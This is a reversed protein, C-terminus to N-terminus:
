EFVCQAPQGLVQTLMWRRQAAMPPLASPAFWEAALMERGDPVIKGAVWEARFLAVVIQVQNGDPYTHFFPLGTFVGALATPQIHIQLEEYAERILGAAPSEGVEMLGGIYGWDQTDARLGLLVRGQADQILAGNGIVILRQSGVAQRLTWYREQGLPQGVPPDFYAHGAAGMDRVMATYWAPCDEPMEGPKFFRQHKSEQGDPRAGGGVIRCEFAVTFQQVQDGNPYAVDWEPAAYLGVVRRPAVQLGTEEAVERVVCETLTEGIELAGGPLGWWEFDTRKQFLLRGQEDRILATTYVLLTKQSGIHSRLWAIYDQPM